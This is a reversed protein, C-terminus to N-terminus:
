QKELKLKVFGSTDPEVGRVKYTATGIELTDGHVITEVDDQDCYFFPQRTEVGPAYESAFFENDLIGNITKTPQGSKRYTATDWDGLMARRDDAPFEM